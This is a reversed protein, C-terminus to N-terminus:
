SNGKDPGMEAKQMSGAAIIAKAYFEYASIKGLFSYVVYIASQQLKFYYRWSFYVVKLLFGHM